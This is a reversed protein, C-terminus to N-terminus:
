KKFFKGAGDIKVCSLPICFFFKRFNLVYSLLDENKVTKVIDRIRSLECNKKLLLFRIKVTDALCTELIDPFM